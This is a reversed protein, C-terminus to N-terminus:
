FNYLEVTKRDVRIVGHCHFELESIKECGFVVRPRKGTNHRLFQAKQITNNRFHSHSM